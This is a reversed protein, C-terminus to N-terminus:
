VPKYVEQELFYIFYTLALIDASGGPSVNLVIFQQNLSTLIETHNKMSITALISKVDEQIKTLALLSSRSIVNTDVSKSLIELLCISGASNIPFNNKLLNEFLPLATEFLIPFGEMAEGRIGTIGHMLFLKEGQTKASEKSINKFDDKLQIVMAQCTKQLECRSYTQNQARMYGLAACIIGLSFIVGKHTNINNTAQYMQKEGELGIKRINNFLQIPSIGLSMSASLTINYFYPTLAISSDIFTFFDMDSHSGNDFRDVLGPKPSTGVEYLLAKTALLSIKTAYNNDNKM